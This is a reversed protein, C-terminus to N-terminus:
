IFLLLQAILAGPLIFDFISIQYGLEELKAYILLNTSSAIVTVMGGLSTTFALPIMLKSTSINFKQAAITMLPIFIVVIPTNNMFMSLLLALMLLSIITASPSKNREHLILKELVHLSDNIVIARGIILM